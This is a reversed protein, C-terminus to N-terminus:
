LAATVNLTSVTVRRMRSSAWQWQQCILCFSQPMGPYIAWHVHAWIHGRSFADIKGPFRRAELFGATEMYTM